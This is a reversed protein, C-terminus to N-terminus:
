QPPERLPERVRAPDFVEPRAPQLEYPELDPTSTFFDALDSSAADFLSMPPAGVLRLVTKLLGPYSANFHSVYNKRVWPGAAMMVTRNADIHDLGGRAEDEAILIAMSKWWPTRSLYEIVRGLAYDNDAIYSAEFAFGDESRPPAVRGNPLHVLSVRPLPEGGKVYRKEIEAIFRTARAQDPVLPDYRPYGDSFDRFSVGHRDLHRRLPDAAIREPGLSPPAAAYFNDSFSWRLAIAHHNPTVNVNRVGLRMQLAQRSQLIVGYRGFRALTPAGNVPGNSAFEIDGLVEDHTRNGKLILVVHRVEAPLPLAEEKRRIFGNNAMVRATLKQLESAEPFAFHQLTGLRAGLRRGDKTSNPGFGHGKASAVWILDNHVAVKTPCWATPIYGLVQRSAVDIVSIANIGAAAALLWGTPAHYATSLPAVGRLAELGAIFLPIDAAFRRQTSDIVAVTDTNPSAVFVFGDSATVSGAMGTSPPGLRLSAEVKAAAPNEVDLIALTNADKKVAAIYLRRGDAALTVAYPAGAVPISATIRRRRTDIVALRSGPGDVVYLIQRARDYALDGAAGPAAGPQRTEFIHRTRGNGTDVLRVRGSAGESGFINDDDAFAIAEFAVPPMPERAEEREREAPDHHDIQWANKDVRLVSITGANAAVIRDGKFNIALGLAGPGILAQRGVPSVIRGGPLISEAGRRVVPHRTGAPARYDEARLLAAAACLALIRM